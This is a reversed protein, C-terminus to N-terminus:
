LYFVDLKYPIFEICEQLAILSLIDHSSILMKCRVDKSIM